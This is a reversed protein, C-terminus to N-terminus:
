AAWVQLVAGLDVFGEGQHVQQAPAYEAVPRNRYAVRRGQPLKRLQGARTMNGVTHRAVAMGVCAKAALEQLTPGQGPQALAEAARLLAQRVEGAPRM